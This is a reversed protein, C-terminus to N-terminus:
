KSCKRGRVHKVAYKERMQVRKKKCGMVLRIVCDKSAMAESENRKVNVKPMQRTTKEELMYVNM